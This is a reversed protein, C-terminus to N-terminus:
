AATVAEAERFLRVDCRGSGRRLHPRRASDITSDSVGPIQVEITGGSLSIDPEGVGFADVRRRINELAQEMVDTPTGAPASLIVAVGGRLDLGLM